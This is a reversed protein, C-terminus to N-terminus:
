SKSYFDFCAVMLFNSGIVRGLGKVLICSEPLPVNYLSSILNSIGIQKM